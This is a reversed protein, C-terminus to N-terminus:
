LVAAPAAGSGRKERRCSAISQSLSRVLMTEYLRRGMLYGGLEGVQATHFRFQEESPVTWAFPGERDAIFGDVSVGMSYILMAERDYPRQRRRLAAKFAYLRRILRERASSHRARPSYKEQLTSSESATSIKWTSAPSVSAGGSNSTWPKGVLLM